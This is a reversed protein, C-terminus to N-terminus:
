RRRRRLALLAAPMLLFWALGADAPAVIQCTDDDDIFIRRFTATPPAPATPTPTSPELGTATATPTTLGDPTSTPTPDPPTDTPTPSIEGVVVSGSVCATTIANGLPDSAGPNTCTLPYTGDPTTDPIGFECTYLISGTPIPDVNDLALVIARLRCLEEECLLAFSTAPKEIEPNATCDGTELSLEPGFLIDNQTGAVELATQLVVDILVTGGAQGSGSQILVTAGAPEPTDTATATATVTPAESDTATATATPASTDTATATPGSTDTPTATPASTDTTTAPPAATDTATATAGSTNTATATLALTNTASPTASPPNTATTTATATGAPTGTATATATGAPTGTATATVTNTPASTVSPSSTPTGTATSIATATQSPTASPSSTPSASPSVSATATPSTTPTASPGTATPSASPSETPTETPTQSPSATETESPTSTPSPTATDGPTDTITGTPTNTPTDSPSDTATATPSESPTATPGETVTETPTSSPTETATPSITPSNTPTESATTSATPSSTPTSSPTASPVPTDTPTASPTATNGPTATSTAAATETPTSSPTTSVTATASPTATQGVGQVVDLVVGATSTDVRFLLSPSITLGFVQAFAGTLGNSDLIDFMDDLAPVFGNILRIDLIGGLSATGTVILRDFQTGPTTGGIEAILRGSANQTYNGTVILTGPSAGPAVQGSNVLNGTVMGSGSLSGGQLDVGPTAALDGGSLQTSGGTQTYGGACKLTGALLQVTGSNTFPVEFLTNGTNGTVLKRFTGQNNFAGGGTGATFGQQDTEGGDNKLEFTSQNNFVAGNLMEVKSDAGDMTGTGGTLNLTRRNLTVDGGVLLGGDVNAVANQPGTGQLEGGTWTFLDSVNVTDTGTLEGSSMDFTTPDISGTTTSFDASGGSIKLAGVAQITGVFSALGGSVATTGTVNYNGGVTTVGNAFEATGAGGIQGPPDIDHDGADFLLTAGAAVSYTGTGGADKAIRLTGSSVQVAGSNEFPVEINTVGTGGIKRLTGANSLTGGLGFFGQFMSVGGDDSFDLTANEGINFEAGNIMQISNTTGFFKATGGTLDVTRTDLTKTSGTLDIGGSATFAGTGEIDGDSWKLETTVIFDDSGTLTGSTIAMSDPQITTATSSFDAQGNALLLDGVNSVMGTFQVMQGGVETAGTVNYSGAVTANSRLAVAGTGSIASAANFAFGNASEFELTGPATSVFTGGTSTGGGAFSLTGNGVQVTGGNNNFEVAVRTEGTNAMANKQFTGSNTFIGAGMFGQTGMADGDSLVSFTAQNEFGTGTELTVVTTPGSMTATGGTVQLTRGALTLANTLAIGNQAILLGGSGIQGGSWTIAGTVTLNGSGTLTGGTMTLGAITVPNPLSVTDGAGITATDGSGPVGPPEWNGMTFWDSSVNGTFDFDTASAPVVAATLAAFVALVAVLLNRSM